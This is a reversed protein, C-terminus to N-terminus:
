NPSRPGASVLWAGSSTSRSLAAAAILAAIATAARALWPQKDRRPRAPLRKGPLGLAREIHFLLLNQGFRVGEAPLDGGEHNHVQVMSVFETVM